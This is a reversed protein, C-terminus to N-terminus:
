VYSQRHLVHVPLLHLCSFLPLLPASNWHPWPRQWTMIKEQSGRLSGPGRLRGLVIPRHRRRFSVGMMGVGGRGVSEGFGAEQRANRGQCAKELKPMCLFRGSLKDLIAPHKKGRKENLLDATSGSFNGKGHTELYHPLQLDPVVSNLDVARHHGVLVCEKSLSLTSGGSNCPWATHGRGEKRPRDLLMREQAELSRSCPGEGLKKLPSMIGAAVAVWM